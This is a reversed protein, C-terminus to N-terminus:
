KHENGHMRCVPRAESARHSGVVTTHAARVFLISAIFVTANQKALRQYELSAPM